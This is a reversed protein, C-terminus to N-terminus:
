FNILNYHVGIGAYFDFTFNAGIGYIFGPGVSFNKRRPLSTQYIRMDKVESYPNYLKIDAYPTGRGLGLFGKKERGVVVSMSDRYKLNVFTSDVRATTNGFVWGRKSFSKGEGQLKFSSNYIPFKTDGKLVYKSTDISETAVEIKATGETTIIGAIGQSKLKSKNKEVLTQLNIIMEDQSRMKLFTETKETEFVSREANSLGDKDKWIKISDQSVKYLNDQEALQANNECEQMLLIAFLALIMAGSIFFWRKYNTQEVHQKM